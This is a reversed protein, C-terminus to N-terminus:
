SMSSGSAAAAASSVRGSQGNSERTTRIWEESQTAKRKERLTLKWLMYVPAAGLSLLGGVGTNSLAWGRAVYAGILAAQTGFLGLGLLGAPPAVWLLVFSGALGAGVGTVIRSLPPVLLDMALDLKVKDRELLGGKLLAALHERLIGSRGEEWRKRQSRAATANSVMEGYVHAEDAYHVRQGAKGLRIGYEVDEVLSYARHPIRQLLDRAFCMGNGRLGCSLGLRERGRSRVVHFSGFAIAVLRTRWSAEPNRVAYDAQVAQAGIALRAAFASLINKSVLTDADIVVAADIEPELREFAYELAYGKGRLKTDNRVLVNAGAARAKEATDDRCNDAVVCVDFWEKPYDVALLSRVTETIGASENHAPVIFRFRFPKDSAKPPEIPASLATLAGLYGTLLGTPVALAGVLGSLASFGSWLTM